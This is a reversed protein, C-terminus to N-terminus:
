WGSSVKKSTDRVQLDAVLLFLSMVTHNVRRRSSVRSERAGGAMASELSCCIPLSTVHCFVVRARPLFRVLSLRVVARSGEIPCVGVHHCVIMAVRRICGRCFVHSLRNGVVYSSREARGEHQFIM